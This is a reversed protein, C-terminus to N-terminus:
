DVKTPAIYYVVNNLNVWKTLAKPRGKTTTGCSIKVEYEGPLIKFDLVPIKVAYPLNNLKINDEIEVEFNNGTSALEDGITIRIKKKDTEFFLYKAKLIPAMKHITALKDAPIAFDLANDLKSFMGEVDPVPEIISAAQTFYRVKENNSGYINIMEKGDVKEIEPKTIASHITLFDQTNYLGWPDFAFPTDFEYFAIVSKTDSMASLKDPAILLSPTIGTFNSLIKVHLDTFTFKTSM